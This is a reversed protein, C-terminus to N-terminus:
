QGAELASVAQRLHGVTLDGSGSLDTRLPMYDPTDKPLLLAFWAFPKLAEELKTVREQLRAAETSNMDHVM